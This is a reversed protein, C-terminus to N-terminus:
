GNKEFGMIETLASFQKRCFADESVYFAISVRGFLKSYKRGLGDMFRTEETRLKCKPMYDLLIMGRRLIHNKLRDMNEQSIFVSSDSFGRSVKLIEKWFELYVDSSICAVDLDSEGIKFETDKQPSFGLHASGTFVVSRFPVHYRDSIASKIEFELSHKDALAFSPRDLYIRRAKSLTDGYSAILKQVEDRRAELSLM